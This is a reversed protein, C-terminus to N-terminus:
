LSPLSISYDIDSEGLYNGWHNNFRIEINILNISKEIKLSSFMRLDIELHFLDIGRSIGHKGISHCKM